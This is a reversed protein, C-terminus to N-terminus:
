CEYTSRGSRGTAITRGSSRVAVSAARKAPNRCVSGKEFDSERQAIGLLRSQGRASLSRRLCGPRRCARTSVSRHSRRGATHPTARHEWQWCHDLRGGGAGLARQSPARRAPTSPGPARGSSEARQGRDATAQSTVSGGPTGMTRRSGGLMVTAPRCGCWRPAPPRAGAAGKATVGSGQGGRGLPARWRGALQRRHLDCPLGGPM